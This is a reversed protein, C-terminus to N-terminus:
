IVPRKLSPPTLPAAIEIPFTSQWVPAALVRPLVAGAVTRVLNDFDLYKPSQSFVQDPYSLESFDYQVLTAKAEAAYYDGDSYRIPFILSVPQGDGFLGPMKQREAFSRWESMCWGSRFYDASWVTLLIRSARLRRQLDESLNVGNEMQTDWFINLGPSIDEIRARLRPAFHNQVWTGATSSRRYSIFVDHEYDM